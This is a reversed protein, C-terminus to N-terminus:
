DTRLRCEYQWAHWGNVLISVTLYHLERASLGVQRLAEWSQRAWNGRWSIIIGHYRPNGPSLRRCFQDVRDTKYKDIKDRYRRGLEANDAVLSPDLVLIEGGKFVILDPKLAGRRHDGIEPEKVSTWGKRRFSESIYKVVENHRKIRHDQTRGCTQLLHALSAPENCSTCLRNAEARGRAARVKTKLCAARVANAKIFDGGSIQLTPDSIWSQARTAEGAESLGRGDTTRYLKDAIATALGQKTNVLSGGIRIAVGVTRYLAEGASSHLLARLVGDETTELRGLRNIRMLRVHHAFSQVGLGGLGVQTHFYSRPTDHPMKLWRQVYKRVTVDM